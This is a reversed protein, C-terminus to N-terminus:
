ELEQLVAKIQQIIQVAQRLAKEADFAEAPIGGPLRNPYRTPIYHRDLSGGM